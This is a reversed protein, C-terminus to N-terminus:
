KKGFEQLQKRLRKREEVVVEAAKDLDEDRDSFGFASERKEIEELTTQLHLLRNVLAIVAHTREPGEGSVSIPGDGLRNLLRKLVRIGAPYRIFIQVGCQECVFYPKNRSSTKVPLGNGCLLCPFKGKFEEGVVPGLTVHHEGKKPNAM